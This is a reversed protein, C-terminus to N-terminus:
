QNSEVQAAGGPNRGDVRPNLNDGTTNADAGQVPSQQQGPKFKSDAQQPWNNQDFGEADELEAANVHLVLQRENDQANHKMRFSKWPVAHLSDGLGLLGGVSLAAYRIEGSQLDIMLDNITGVDENAANVVEMGILDDARHVAMGAPEDRNRDQQAPQAVDRDREVAPTDRDVDVQINTDGARIDVDAAEDARRNTGYHTDIGRAFEADAMNPWNDSEFGPAKRLTEENVNLLLVHDDDQMRVDFAEFPVAFLKSGLGLFGGYSVAIYKVKGQNTDFVLDRVNGLDKGAENQINMGQIESARLAVGQVASQADQPAQPRPRADPIVPKNAEVEVQTGENNQLNNDNDDAIAASALWGASALAVAAAASFSVKM